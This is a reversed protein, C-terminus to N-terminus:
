HMKRCTWQLPFIFAGYFFGDTQPIWRGEDSAWSVANWRSKENNESVSAASLGARSLASAMLSNQRLLCLLVLPGSHQKTCRCLKTWLVPTRTLWDNFTVHNLLVDLLKVEDHTWILSLCWAENWYSTIKRRSSCCINFIQVKLRRGPCRRRSM